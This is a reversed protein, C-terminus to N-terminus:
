VSYVVTFDDGVQYLVNVLTVVNGAVTYNAPIQQVFLAGWFLQVASGALPTHALVLPVGAYVFPEELPTTAVIVEPTISDGIGGVLNQGQTIRHSVKESILDFSRHPMLGPRESLTLDALTYSHAHDLDYATISVVGDGVIRYDAGHHQLVEGSMRRGQPYLATEYGTAVPFGNDLYPHVDDASNRRMIGDVGSSGLWLEKKQSVATVSNPLGNKVLTGCGVSFSQYTYPSYQVTEPTFGKTYDWTLVHSPTTAGDLCAFVYVIKIGPDDKIQVANPVNWNIRDWDPQDYYSVPLAPFGGQFFYLGDAAAVWAYLGAPSVEVGRISLTGRGGDVLKPTAWSSPDAGDDATRYTWEPGFIFLTGDISAATTIKRLGPLQILSRTVNITQYSRFEAPLDSIFLASSLGGVNNQIQTVYVMRNGHTLVVSPYFQPVNSVSNTLLQLADTSDEGNALLLEDSIDITFTITSLVGGTVAQVAGPVLRYDAPSAVSAMVAYVNVADTPWTTTLSWSLYKGGSATFKIPVFTTLSPTSGVGSDPCVRGIFGSRHGIRYGFNHVGVTVTGPGPETPAPPVYTIPPRFALDSVFNPAQYTLVRAGSAGVGTATFFSLFLRAGAEAFTAAYGILDGAIVTSAGSGVDVDLKRVSRDSTRYWLLLNGLSSVWSFMASMSDTTAFALSFGLRTGASGGATFQVNESLLAHDLPVDTSDPSLWAGSFEKNTVSLFSPDVM